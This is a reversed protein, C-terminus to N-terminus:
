DEPKGALRYMNYADDTLLKFGFSGGELPFIHHTTNGNSYKERYREGKSLIGCLTMADEANIVFSGYPIEVIVKSM